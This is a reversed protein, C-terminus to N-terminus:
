GGFYGMGMPQMPAGGPPMGMAHMPHGGMPPGMPGPGMPGMPGMGMMHTPMGHEQMIQANREAGMMAMGMGGPGGMGLNQAMQARMVMDGTVMNSGDRMM